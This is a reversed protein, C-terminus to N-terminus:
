PPLGLGIWGSSGYEYFYATGDSGVAFVSSYENSGITQHSAGVRKLQACSGPCPLKYFVGNAFRYPIWSGTGTPVDIYTDYTTLDLGLPSSQLLDLGDNGSSSWAGNSGNSNPVTYLYGNSGIIRAEDASGNWYVGEGMVATIGSPGPAESWPYGSGNWGAHWLTNNSAIVWLQPYSSGANVAGVGSAIGLGPPTGLNTWGWSGTYHALWVNGDDGVMFVFPQNSSNTCVGIGKVLAAGNPPRGILNTEWTGSVDHSIYLDGDNGISYAAPVGGPSTVGVGISVAAGTPLLGASTWVWVPDGGTPAVFWVRGDSAAVWGSPVSGYRDSGISATISAAIAATVTGMAVISALTVLFWRVPSKVNENM